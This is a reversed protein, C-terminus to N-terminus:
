LGLVPTKKVVEELSIDHCCLIFSNDQTREKQLEISNWTEIINYFRGPPTLNYHMEPVPKMNDPVFVSDGACIYLGNATDVEVSIHGPSHGPTEFVRVGDIIEREGTIIIFDLDEFQRKEIGTEPHEYSKYYLPIPNFATEYEKKHVYFEANTFKDAYYCHDWHLHTFIVIEIDEPKYGIKELQEYIAMGEPQRSGPHHYNSARESWAMGTDVLLLKDGGEILFTFCPMDIREDTADPYYKIVSHHYWYQTKISTVYGTNIPRVTLKTM